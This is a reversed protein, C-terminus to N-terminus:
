VSDVLAFKQARKGGEVRLKGERALWGIAQNTLADKAGIGKQIGSSTAPGNSALFGWVKGAAQGIQDNMM